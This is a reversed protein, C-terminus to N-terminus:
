PGAMEHDDIGVVSMSQPVPVGARRLAWLAGIALEDYEAFVATPLVPGSLLRAM